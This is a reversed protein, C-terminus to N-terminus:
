MIGGTLCTMWSPGRLLTPHVVVPGRARTAVSLPLLCHLPTPTATPPTSTSTATQFSPVSSASGGAIDTDTLQTGQEEWSLHRRCCCSVPKPLLYGCNIHGHQCQQTTGDQFVLPDPPSSLSLHVDLSGEVDTSYEQRQPRRLLPDLTPQPLAVQSPALHLHGLPTSSSLLSFRVHRAV